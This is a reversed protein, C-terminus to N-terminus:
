DESSESASDGQQQSRLPKRVNDSSKQSKRRKGGFGDFVELEEADYRARWGTNKLLVRWRDKLDVSSRSNAAFVEQNENLILSWVRYDDAHQLIGDLLAQTEEDSWERRFRQGKM